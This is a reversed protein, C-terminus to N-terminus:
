EFILEESYHEYFLIENGEKVIDWLILSKLLFETPNVGFIRAIKQVLRLNILAIANNELRGLRSRAIEVEKTYFSTL